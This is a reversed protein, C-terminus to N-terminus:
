LVMERTGCRNCTFFVSDTSFPERTGCKKCMRVSSEISDKQAEESSIVRKIDDVSAM